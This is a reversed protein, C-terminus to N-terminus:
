FITSNNRWNGPVIYYRHKMARARPHTTQPSQDDVRGTGRRQPCSRGVRTLSWTSAFKAGLKGFDCEFVPAEPGPDMGGEMNDATSCRRFMKRYIGRRAKATSSSAANYGV